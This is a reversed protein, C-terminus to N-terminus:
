CLFLQFNQNKFSLESIIWPTIPHWNLCGLFYNAYVVILHKNTSPFLPTSTRFKYIKQPRWLYNVGYCIRKQTQTFNNKNIERKVRQEKMTKEMTKCTLCFLYGCNKFFVISFLNSFLDLFADCMPRNRKSLILVFYILHRLSYSYLM